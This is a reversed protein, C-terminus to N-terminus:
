STKEAHTLGRELLNRLADSRRVTVGKAASKKMREMHCEIREALDAEVRISLTEYASSALSSTTKETKTNKTNM